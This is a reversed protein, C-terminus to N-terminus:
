LIGQFLNTVVEYNDSSLDDELWEMFNEGSESAYQNNFENNVAALQDPTLANLISMIKGENQGTLDLGDMLNHLNEAVALASWGAPIGSGGNPLDLPPPAPKDKFWNNMWGWFSNDSSSQKGKNYFYLLVITIVIIIGIGRWNNKVFTAAAGVALATSM